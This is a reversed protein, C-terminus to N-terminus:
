LLVRQIIKVNKCVKRGCNGLTHGMPLCEYLYQTTVGILDVQRSNSKNKGHKVVQLSGLSYTRRTPRVARPAIPVPATDTNTSPRCTLSALSIM